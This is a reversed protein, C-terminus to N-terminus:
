ARRNWKEVTRNILDEMEDISCQFSDLHEGQEVFSCNACSILCSLQGGIATKTIIAKAEGGCFPCPKLKEM